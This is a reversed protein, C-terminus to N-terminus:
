ITSTPPKKVANCLAPEHVQRGPTRTNGKAYGRDQRATSAFLKASSLSAREIVAERHTTSATSSVPGAWCLPLDAGGLVCARPCSHGLGYAGACVIFTVHKTGYEEVALERRVTFFIPTPTSMSGFEHFM